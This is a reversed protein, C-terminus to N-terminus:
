KGNRKVVRKIRGINTSLLTDGRQETNFIGLEKVSLHNYEVWVQLLREAMFGFVRKQYDDKYKECNIHKEVEFLIAFLWKSYACLTKHHCIMMNAYYYSHSNLVKQYTSLYEPYISKIVDGLITLDESYHFYSYTDAVTRFAHRKQPLIIDFHKLNEEIINRSLINPIKGGYYYLYTEKITTFYRRYHVLGDIEDAPENSNKWIWYLGTLECYNANKSSINDGTNDKLYWSKYNKNTGVHLIRHYTQEIKSDDFSKHTIVYIM